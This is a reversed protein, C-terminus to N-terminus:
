RYDWHWEEKSYPHFGFQPAHAVLWPHLWTTKWAARQESLARYLTGGFSTNFDLAMANSHNSWGPPAKLNAM